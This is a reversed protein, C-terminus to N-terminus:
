RGERGNARPNAGDPAVRADCVSIVSILLVLAALVLVRDNKRRDMALKTSTSDAQLSRAVASCRLSLRQAIIFCLSDLQLTHAHAGEHGAETV